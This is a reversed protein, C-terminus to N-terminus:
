PPVPPWLFVLDHNPRARTQLAVLWAEEPPISTTGGFGPQDCKLETVGSM